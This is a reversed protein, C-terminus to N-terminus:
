SLLTQSRPNSSAHLVFVSLYTSSVLTLSSRRAVHTVQSVKVSREQVDVFGADEMWTKLSTAIRLPKGFQDSADNLKELWGTLHPALALTGDDSYVDAEFEQSEFWGGPKLADYAQRYLRPWDAVSGCLGRAHIYEFHEDPTYDWQSEFDHVFFQCNPPVWSPQIPSLDTGVVTSSPHEDAFHIAWIGTGTGLDLVRSPPDDESLPAYHLAGGAIVRYVHHLMDLRQQETDDNPLIYAGERYAHYRRGNEYQYDM